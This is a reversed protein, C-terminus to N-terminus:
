VKRELFPTEDDIAHMLTGNTEVVFCTSHVGILGSARALMTTDCCSIM